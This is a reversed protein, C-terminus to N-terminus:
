VRYYSGFSTKKMILEEGAIQRSTESTSRGLEKDPDRERGLTWAAPDSAPFQGRPDDIMEESVPEDRKSMAGM